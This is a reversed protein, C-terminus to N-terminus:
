SPKNVACGVVVTTLWKVVRVRPKRTKFMVPLGLLSGATRLQEATAPALDQTINEITLM